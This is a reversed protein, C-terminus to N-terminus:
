PPRRGVIAAGVLFPEAPGVLFPEFSAVPWVFLGGLRDRACVVRLGYPSAAESLRRLAREKNAKPTPDPM